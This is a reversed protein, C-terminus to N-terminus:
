GDVDDGAAIGPADGSRPDPKQPPRGGPASTAQPARM